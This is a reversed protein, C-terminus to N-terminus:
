NIVVTVKIKGWQLDTCCTLYQNDMKKVIHESIGERGVVSAYEKGNYRWRTIYIFLIGAEHRSHTGQAVERYWM